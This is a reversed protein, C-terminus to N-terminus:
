YKLLIRFAILLYNKLMISHWLLNHVFLAPATRLGDLGYRLAARRPGYYDARDHYDEELDGLVADYEPSLLREFLWVVPRPPRHIPDPM